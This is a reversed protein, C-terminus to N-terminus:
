CGVQNLFIKRQRTAPLHPMISPTWRSSQHGRRGEVRRPMPHGERQPAWGCVVSPHSCRAPRGYAKAIPHLTGGVAHMRVAFTAVPSAFFVLLPTGAASEGRHACGFNGLSPRRKPARPHPAANTELGRRAPAGGGGSGGDHVPGRTLGASSKM